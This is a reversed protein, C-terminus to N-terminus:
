LSSSAAWGNGLWVRGLGDRSVLDMCRFASARAPESRPLIVGDEDSFAQAIIARLVDLAYYPQWSRQSIMDRLEEADLFGM